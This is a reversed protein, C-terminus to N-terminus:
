ALVLLLVVIAITTVVLAAGIVWRDARGRVDPPTERLPPRLPISAAPAPISGIRVRRQSLSEPIAQPGAAPRETGQDGIGLAGSKPAGDGFRRLWDPLDDDTLIAAFDPHTGAPSEPPTPAAQLGAAPRLWAPMATALGGDPIPPLPRDSGVPFGASGDRDTAGADDAHTANKPRDATM